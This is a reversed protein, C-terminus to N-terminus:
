DFERISQLRGKCFNVLNMANVIHQYTKQLVQSLYDDIIGM